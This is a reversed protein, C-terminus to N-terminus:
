QLREYIHRVMKSRELSVPLKVFVIRVEVLDDDGAAGGGASFTDSDSSDKRVLKSLRAFDSELRTKSRIM